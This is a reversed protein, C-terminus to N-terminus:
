SPIETIDIGSLAKLLKKKLKYVPTRSVPSKVDEYVWTRQDVDWYCFDAVYRCVLTGNVALDVRKQLFLSEIEGADRLKKLDDYRRAEALSDFRIGDVVTPQNRYKRTTTKAQMANYEDASITETM